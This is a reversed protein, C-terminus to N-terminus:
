DADFDTPREPLSSFSENPVNFGSTARYLLDGILPARYNMPTSELTNHLAISLALLRTGPTAGRLADILAKAALLATDIDGINSSM